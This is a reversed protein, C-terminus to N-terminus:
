LHVNSNSVSDRGLFHSVLFLPSMIVRLVFPSHHISTVGGFFLQQSLRSPRHILGDASDRMSITGMICTVYVFIKM